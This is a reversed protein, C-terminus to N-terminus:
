TRFLPSVEELSSRTWSPILTRGFSRIPQRAILVSFQDRRTTIARINIKRAALAALGHLSAPMRSAQRDVSVKASM